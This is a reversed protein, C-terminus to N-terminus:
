ARRLKAEDLAQFLTASLNMSIRQHELSPAPDVPRTARPFQVGVGERFRVHSERRM